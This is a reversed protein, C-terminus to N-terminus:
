LLSQFHRVYLLPAHDILNLKKIVSGGRRLAGLLGRLPLPKCTIVQGLQHYMGSDPSAGSPPVLPVPTELPPVQAVPDSGHVFCVIRDNVTKGFSADGVRPAGYVYVGQVREGLRTATLIAMAGGLSHGTLWLPRGASGIRNLIQDLEQKIENVAKAFGSHVRGVAAPSAEILGAQADTISDALVGNLNKIPHVGPIFVQTGRFAVIVVGNGEAVFGQTSKGSVFGALKFGVKALAREIVPPENYALLSMEALWWANARSFGSAASPTPEFPPRNPIEFFPHDEESVPPFLSVISTFM